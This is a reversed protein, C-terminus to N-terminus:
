ISRRRRRMAAGRACTHLMPAGCHSAVPVRPGLECDEWSGASFYCVAKAGAAHIADVTAKTTLEGDLFCVGRNIQPAPPRTPPDSCNAHSRPAPYNVTPAAQTPAPAFRASFARNEHTV